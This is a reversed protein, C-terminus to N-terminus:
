RDRLDPWVSAQGSSASRSIRLPSSTPTNGSPKLPTPLGKESRYLSCRNPRPPNTAEAILAWTGIM